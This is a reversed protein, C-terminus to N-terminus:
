VLSHKTDLIAYLRNLESYHPTGGAM